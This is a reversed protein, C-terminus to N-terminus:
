CFDFATDLVPASGGAAESLEAEDIFIKLRSLIQLFTIRGRADSSAICHKMARAADVKTRYFPKGGKGKVLFIQAIREPYHFVLLSIFEELIDKTSHLKWAEETPVRPNSLYRQSDGNSRDMPMAVTTENQDEEVKHDEEEGEEDDVDSGNGEEGPTGTSNKAGKSHGLILVLTCRTDSKQTCLESIATEFRHLAASLTAEPNRRWPGRCMTSFYFVPNGSRDRGQQFFQGNQLEIRCGRIDVPFVRGRWGSTQVIRVAAMKINCGSASVFRKIDHRSVTDLVPVLMMGEPLVTSIRSFHKAGGPLGHIYNRRIPVQVGKLLATVENIAGEIADEYRPSKMGKPLQLTKPSAVVAVAENPNGGWASVILSSRIASAVGSAVRRSWINLGGQESLLRRRSGGLEREKRFENMAPTIAVAATDVRVMRTTCLAREPLEDKREGELVLTFDLVQESMQENLHAFLFQSVLNPMGKATFAMSMAVYNKPLDNNDQLVGGFHYTEGYSAIRIAPFPIRDRRAQLSMPSEQGKKTLSFLFSLFRVLLMGLFSLSQSQGMQIMM